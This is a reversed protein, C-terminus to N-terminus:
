SVMPQLVSAGLPARGKSLGRISFTIEQDSSILKLFTLCFCVQGVCRVAHAEAFSMNLCLCWPDMFMCACVCGTSWIWIGVFVVM